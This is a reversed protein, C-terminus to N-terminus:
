SDTSLKPMDSPPGPAFGYMGSNAANKRNMRNLLQLPRTGGTPLTVNRRAGVLSTLTVIPRASTANANKSYWPKRCRPM